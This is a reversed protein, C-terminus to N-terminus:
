WWDGLSRSVGRQVRSGTREIAIYEESYEVDTPDIVFFIPIKLEPPALEGVNTSLPSVEYM